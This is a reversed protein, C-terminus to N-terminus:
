TPCAIPTTACIVKVGEAIFAAESSTYQVNTVYVPRMFSNVGGVLADEGDWNTLFDVIEAFDPRKSPDETCCDQILRCLLPFQGKFYSPLIPRWGSIILKCFHAESFKDMKPFDKQMSDLYRRLRPLSPSPLPSFARSSIRGVGGEVDEVYLNKIKGDMVIDALVCGCSYVDSARTFENGCLIEPAM